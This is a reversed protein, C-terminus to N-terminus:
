ASPMSAPTLERSLHFFGLPDSVLSGRLLFSALGWQELHKQPYSFRDQEDQVYIVADTRMIRIGLKQSVARNIEPLCKKEKRGFGKQERVSCLNLFFTAELGFFLCEVFLFVKHLM